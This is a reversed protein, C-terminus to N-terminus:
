ETHGGEEVPRDEVEWVSKLRSLEGVLEWVVGDVRRLIRLREDVDIGREATWPKPTSDVSSGLYPLHLPTLYPTYRPVEVETSSTLAKAKGKDKSSPINIEDQIIPFTHTPTETLPTPTRTAQNGMSSQGFRKIAAEAAAKRASILSEEGSTDSAEDRAGEVEDSDGEVGDAELGRSSSTASFIEPPNSNMPTVSGPTGARDSPGANATAANPTITTRSSQRPITRPGDTSIHPHPPAFSTTPPRTYRSPGATPQATPQATSSWRPAAGLPMAHFRGPVFPGGWISRQIAQDENEQVPGSTTTPPVAAVGTPVATPVAAPQPQNAPTPLRFFENFEQQLNPPPQPVAGPAPAPPIAANRLDPRRPAPARLVNRRSYSM